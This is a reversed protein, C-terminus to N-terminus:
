AILDDGSGTEKLDKASEEVFCLVFWRPSFIGFFFGFFGTRQILHLPNLRTEQVGRWAGLQILWSAEPGAAASM